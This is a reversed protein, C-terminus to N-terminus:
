QRHMPRDGGTTQSGWFPLDSSTETVDRDGVSDLEPCNGPSYSYFFYDDLTLASHSTKYEM